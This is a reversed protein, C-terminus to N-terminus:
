DWGARKARSPNRHAHANVPLLLLHLGNFLETRTAATSVRNASTGFTRPAKPMNQPSRSPFSQLLEQPCDCPQLPATASVPASLGQKGMEGPSPSPLWSLRHHTRSRGWGPEEGAGMGLHGKGMEKTVKLAYQTRPLPFVVM